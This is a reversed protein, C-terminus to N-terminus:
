KVFSFAFPLCFVGCAKLGGLRERVCFGWLGRLARLYYLGVCGGYFGSFVGKFQSISGYECDICWACLSPASLFAPVCSWLVLAPMEDPGAPGSDGFPGAGRCGTSVVVAGFLSGCRFGRCGEFNLYIKFKARKPRGFDRSFM